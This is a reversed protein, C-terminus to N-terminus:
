VQSKGNARAKRRREQETLRETEIIEEEAIDAWASGARKLPQMWERVEDETAQRLINQPPPLPIVGLLPLGKDVTCACLYCIDMEAICARSFVLFESFYALRVERRHLEQVKRKFRRGTASSRGYGTRIGCGECELNGPEEIYSSRDM